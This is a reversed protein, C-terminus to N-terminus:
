RSTRSGPERALALAIETDAQELDIARQELQSLGIELSALGHEHQQVLSRLRETEAQLAHLHAEASRMWEIVPPPATGASSAVHSALAEHGAQLGTLHAEVSRRWPASPRITRLLRDLWGGNDQTSDHGM